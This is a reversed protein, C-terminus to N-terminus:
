SKAKASESSVSNDRAMGLGFAILLGSAWPDLDAVTGENGDALARLEPMIIILGGIVGLVTTRWSKLLANVVNEIAM